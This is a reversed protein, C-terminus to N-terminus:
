LGLEKKFDKLNFLKFTQYDKLLELYENGLIDLNKTQELEKIKDKTKGNLWNFLITKKIKYLKLEIKELTDQFDFRTVCQLNNASLWSLFDMILFYHRLSQIYDCEEKYNHKNLYLGTIEEAISVLGCYEKGLEKKLKKEVKLLLEQFHRDRM